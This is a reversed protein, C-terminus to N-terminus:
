FMLCGDKILFDERLNSELDKALAIFVNVGANINDDIVEKLRAIEDDKLIFIRTIKVGKAIVERNTQLYKIGVASKWFSENFYYTAAKIETRAGEVLSVLTPYDIYNLNM